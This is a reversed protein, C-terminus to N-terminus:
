HLVMFCHSFGLHDVSVGAAVCICWYCCVCLGAWIPVLEIIMLVHIHVRSCAEREVWLITGQPLKTRIVIELHFYKKRIPAIVYFTFSFGM